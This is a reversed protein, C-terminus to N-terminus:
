CNQFNERFLLKLIYGTGMSVGPTLKVLMKHAAKTGFEKQWFFYLVLNFASLLQAFFKPMVTLKVLIKCDAKKYWLEKRV